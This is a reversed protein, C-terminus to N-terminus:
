KKKKAKVKKAVKKVKVDEVKKAKVKETAPKEIEPKVTKVEALPKVMVKKVPLNAAFHTNLFETIRDLKAHLKAFQEQMQDPGQAKARSLGNDKGFCQSCYVPKEGTPKFPVQCREGCSACTAQFLKKSDGFSFREDGRESRMDRDRREPRQFSSSGGQKSFCDTCFVPRGNRPEFPIECDNGCESCKAHFMQKPGRFGGSFNSGGRGGFDRRSGRHDDRNFRGM